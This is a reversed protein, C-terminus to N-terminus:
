LVTNPLYYGVLCAVVVQLSKQYELHSLVTTLGNFSQGNWALYYEKVIVRNCTMPCLEAFVLIRVTYVYICVFLIYGTCYYGCVSPALFIFICKLFPFITKREEFSSLQAEAMKKSQGAQRITVSSNM